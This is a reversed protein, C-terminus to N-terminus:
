AGVKNSKKLNDEAWLPQLNKYNFCKKQQVQNSLDFADCPIIHDIHWEGYNEFNMGEKFSKQLHKKLEEITCGLLEMTHASKSKGKLASRLRQRLNCKLQFEIDTVRRNKYYQNLKDPHEKRYKKGYALLKEKNAEYYKKHEEQRETKHLNKYTLSYLLRKDRNKAYSDSSYKKFETKHSQYYEKHYLKLEEKTM